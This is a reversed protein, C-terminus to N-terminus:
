QYLHVVQSWTIAAGFEFNVESCGIQNVKCKQVRIEQKQRELYIKCTGTSVLGILVTMEVPAGKNQKM